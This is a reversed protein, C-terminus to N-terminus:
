VHTQNCIMFLHYYIMKLYYFEMRPGQKKGMLKAPIQQYHQVHVWYARSLDGTWPLECENNVKVDLSLKSEGFLRLTHRQAQRLFDSSIPSRAIWLPVMEGWCWRRKRQLVQRSYISQVKSNNDKWQQWQSQSESEARPERKRSISSCDSLGCQGSGVNLSCLVQKKM